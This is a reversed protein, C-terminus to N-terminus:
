LGPFLAALMELSPADLMLDIDDLAKSVGGVFKVNYHNNSKALDHKAQLFGVFNKHNALM